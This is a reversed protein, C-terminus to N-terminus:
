AMIMLLIRGKMCGRGERKVKGVVEEVGKIEGTKEGVKGRGRM